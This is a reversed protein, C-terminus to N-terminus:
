YAFDLHALGVYRRKHERKFPDSIVCHLNMKRCRSCPEESGPIVDCRVQFRMLIPSLKTRWVVFRKSAANLAHKAAENQPRGILRDTLYSCTMTTVAYQPPSHEMPPLAALIASSLDRASARDEGRHEAAACHYVLM